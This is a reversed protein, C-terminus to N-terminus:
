EQSFFLQNENNVSEDIEKLATILASLEKPALEGDFSTSRYEKKAFTFIITSHWAQDTERGQTPARLKDIKAIDLKSLSNLILQWQDEELPANRKAGNEEFIVQNPTITMIKHSGRTGTEFCIKQATELESAGGGCLRLLLFVLFLNKM